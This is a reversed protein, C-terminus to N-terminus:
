GEGLSELHAGKWARTRLFIMSRFSVVIEAVLTTTSMTPIPTLPRTNELPGCLLPLTMRM